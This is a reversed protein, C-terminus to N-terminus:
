TALPVITLLDEATNTTLRREDQGNTKVSWLEFDGDERVFIVRSGNATFVPAFQFAVDSALFVSANPSSTPAAYLDIGSGGGRPLAPAFLFAFSDGDPAWDSFITTTGMGYDTLENLAQGNPKITWVDYSDGDTTTFAILGREPHWGPATVAGDYIPRKHTGDANMVMLRSNGGRRAIPLGSTGPRLLSPFRTWVIQSGNRSWNPSVNSGATTLQRRRSGDARATYVQLSDSRDIAAYVASTGQPSWHGGYEGLKPTKAVREQDAGTPKMTFLDLVATGRMTSSKVRSFLVRKGQDPFAASAPFVTGVLATLVAVAVLSIRFRSRSSM